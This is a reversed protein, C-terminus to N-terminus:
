RSCQGETAEERIDQLSLCKGLRGGGRARGLTRLSLLTFADEYCDIPVIQCAGAARGGWSPGRYENRNSVSDVEPGLAAQLILDTCFSRM